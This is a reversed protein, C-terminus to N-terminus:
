AAVVAGAADLRPIFRAGFPAGTPRGDEAVLRGRVVTMKVRGTVDLGEFPTWGARGVLLDQRITWREAPDVITFDGDAGIRIAGKRPYLGYLRAPAESTLAALRELSLHGKAALDLMLPVMTENGPMGAQGDLVNNSGRRKLEPDVPGHDSGVTAVEGGAVLGRMGDRAAASRMPPSVAVWAGRELVDDETLYLYHPCTECTAAVGRERARRVLHVGDPSTVHVIHVRTGIREAYFLIRAIAELEALETHWRSWAGNDSAGERRLRAIGARLLEDNEAHFTALGGVSAIITLAEVLDADDIVGKMACGTDCTFIKYAAAGAHWLGPLDAFHDPSVGGYLAFDVHSTREGLAAKGEFTATDLVEPVTLPMEIITTVGGAAASATSDAFDPGSMFGAEWLHSHPDIIGPLVVLGRVDIVTAGAPPALGRGIAAIIGGDVLIDADVRGDATVVTGGSVLTATM